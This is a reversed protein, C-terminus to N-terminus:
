FDDEKIAEYIGINWGGGFKYMIYGTLGTIIQLISLNKIWNWVAAAIEPFAQAMIWLGALEIILGTLFFPTAILLKAPKDM